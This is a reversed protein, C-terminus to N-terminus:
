LLKEIDKKISDLDYAPSYRKVVNGQKDVLFKTFNWKIDGPKYDVQYDKIREEFVKSDDNTIDIPAVKKLYDFLPIATAGNVDVKKFRLYKTGYNLTCIEHVENDTEPTENLFQNSPFDLIEFGKLNFEEYLDQLTKYQPTLACRTASNVILLVKGKFKDLKVKNAKNDIVEFDYINM